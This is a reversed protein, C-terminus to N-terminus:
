RQYYAEPRGLKRSHVQVGCLPFAELGCSSMELCWATLLHVDFAAMLKIPTTHVKSCFKVVKCQTCAKVDYTVDLGRVMDMGHVNFCNSCAQSLFTEGLVGVLPRKASWLEVGAKFDKKVFLGKGEKDIESKRVEMSQDNADVNDIKSSSAM